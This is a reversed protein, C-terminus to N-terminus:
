DVYDAYADHMGSFRIGWFKDDTYIMGPNWTQKVLNKHSIKNIKKINKKM